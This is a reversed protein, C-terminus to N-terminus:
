NAEGRMSPHIMTKRKENAEAAHIKADEHDIQNFIGELLHKPDPHTKDTGAQDRCSEKKQKRTEWLPFLDSEQSITRKQKGDTSKKIREKVGNM